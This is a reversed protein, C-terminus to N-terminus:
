YIIYHFENISFRAFFFATILYCSFMFYKAETTAIENSKEKIQRELRILVINSDLVSKENTAKNQHLMLLEGEHDEDSCVVLIKKTVM